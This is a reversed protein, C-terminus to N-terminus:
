GITLLLPGLVFIVELRRGILKGMFVGGPLVVILKRGHVVSPRARHRHTRHICAAVILLLADGVADAAPLHRRRLGCFGFVVFLIDVMLLRRVAACISSPERRRFFCVDVPLLVAGAALDVVVLVVFFGRGALRSVTKSEELARRGMM